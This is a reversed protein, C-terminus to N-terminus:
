AREADGLADVRCPRQREHAREFPVIGGCPADVCGGGDVAIEDDGAAMDACGTRQRHDDVVRRLAYGVHHAAGVQECRGM